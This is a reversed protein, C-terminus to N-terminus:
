SGALGEAVAFDDPTTVKFNRADGPVLRVTNGAAEVLAADDTHKLTGAARRYANELVVRPFGQPTQARWLGDRSVTEVVQEGSARKLTDTVPLVPVAGDGTGATAIVRDIVEASVFPRAADHVLVITCESDLAGLAARVSAARTEGGAVLKLGHGVHDALWAPPASVQTPPLAM